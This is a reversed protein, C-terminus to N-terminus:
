IILSITITILKEDRRNITSSGYIVDDYTGTETIDKGPVLTEYRHRFIFSM